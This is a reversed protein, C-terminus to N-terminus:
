PHPFNLFLCLEFKRTQKDDRGGERGWGREGEKQKGKNGKGRGTGSRRDRKKIKKNKM